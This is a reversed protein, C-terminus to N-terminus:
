GGGYGSEGGAEEDPDLAAEGDTGEEGSSFEEEGGTGVDGRYGGSGAIAQGSGVGGPGVPGAWFM